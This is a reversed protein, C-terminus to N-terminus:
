GLPLQVLPEFYHRGPLAFVGRGSSDGYARFTKKAAHPSPFIYRRRLLSLRHGFSVLPIIGRGHMRLSALPGLRQLTFDQHWLFLRRRADTDLDRVAGILWSLALM